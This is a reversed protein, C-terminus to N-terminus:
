FFHLHHAQSKFRPGCSPLRLCCWPAITAVNSINVDKVLVNDGIKFAHPKTNNIFHAHEAYGLLGMASTTM